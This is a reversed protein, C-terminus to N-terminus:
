RSWPHFAGHRTTKQIFISLIVGALFCAPSGAGSSRTRLRARSAGVRSPRCSKRIVYFDKRKRNGIFQDRAAPFAVVDETGSTMPVGASTVAHHHSAPEPAGCGEM